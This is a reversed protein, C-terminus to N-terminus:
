SPVHFRYTCEVPVLDAIPERFRSAGAAPVIEVIRSLRRRAYRLQRPPPKILWSTGFFGLRCCLADDAVPLESGPRRDRNTPIWSVREAAKVGLARLYHRSLM